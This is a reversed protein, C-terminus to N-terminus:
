EHRLPFHCFIRTDTTSNKSKFVWDGLLWAGKPGTKLWYSIDASDTSIVVSEFEGNNTASHSQSSRKKLHDTLANLSMEEYPNSKAFYSFLARFDRTYESLSLLTMAGHHEHNPNIGRQIHYCSGSFGEESTSPQHDSVLFDQLIQEMIATCKGRDCLEQPTKAFSNLSLAIFPAALWTTWKM